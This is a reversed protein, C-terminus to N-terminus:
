SKQNEEIVSEYYRINSSFCTPLKLEKDDEDFQLESLEIMINRGYKLPILTFSIKQEDDTLQLEIHDPKDPCIVSFRVEQQNEYGERVKHYVSEFCDRMALDCYEIDTLKSELDYHVKGYAHSLELKGAAKKFKDIFIDTNKIIMLETDDGQWLPKIFEWPIVHHYRNNEVDYNKRDYKLGYMCYIYAYNDKHILSTDGLLHWTQKEDTSYLIKCPTNVITGEYKDQQGATLKDNKFSMQSNMFMKYEEYLTKNYEPKSIRLLLLLQERM